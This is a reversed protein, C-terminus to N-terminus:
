PALSYVDCDAICKATALYIKKIQGEDEYRANDPLRSLYQDYFANRAKYFQEPTKGQADLYDWLWLGIARPLNKDERKPLRKLACVHRLNEENAEDNYPWFVRDKNYQINDSTFNYAAKIEALILNLPKSFDIKYARINGRCIDVGHRALVFRTQEALTKEADDGFIEMAECEDALNRIASRRNTPIFRYQFKGSLVDELIDTSSGYIDIGRCSVHLFEMKQAFKSPDHRREYEFLWFGAFQLLTESNRAM